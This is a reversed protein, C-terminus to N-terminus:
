KNRQGNAAIKKRIISRYENFRALTIDNHVEFGLAVSINAIVEEFSVRRGGEEKAFRELEGRKMNARTILNDVKHLNATISEAYLATSDVNIKFGRKRLDQVYDMDVVFALKWLSLKAITYNAILQAYAKLLQFYSDYTFDGAAQSNIRVIEEWRLLLFERQLNGSVVLLSVDGTTAIAMYNRLPINDYSYCKGSEQM